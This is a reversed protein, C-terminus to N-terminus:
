GFAWREPPGAVVGERWWCMRDVGVLEVLEVGCGAM